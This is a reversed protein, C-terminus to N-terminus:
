SASGPTPLERHYAAHEFMATLTEAGSEDLHKAMHYWQGEGAPVGPSPRFEGPRAPPLADHHAMVVSQMCNFFAGQWEDDQAYFMTAMQEPTINGPEKTVWASLQKQLAVVQQLASGYREVLAYLKKDSSEREAAVAAELTKRLVIM